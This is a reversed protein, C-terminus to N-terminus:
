LVTCTVVDIDTEEEEWDISPFPAKAIKEFTAEDLTKDDDEVQDPVMYIDLTKVLKLYIRM